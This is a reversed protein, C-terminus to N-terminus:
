LGAGYASLEFGFEVGDEVLSMKILNFELLTDFNEIYQILSVIDAFKGIGDIKIKEKLKIMSSTDDKADISKLSYIKLNKQVSFKLIDDLTNAWRMDDFFAYRIKYVQSMVFDVEDKKVKLDEKIALLERNKKELQKKLSKVSNKSIKIQMMEVSARLESQRELMPPVFHNLLFGVAIFFSAFIMLKQSKDATKLYNDLAKM